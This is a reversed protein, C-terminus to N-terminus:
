VRIRMAPDLLALNRQRERRHFSDSRQQGGEREGLSAEGRIIGRVEFHDLPDLSFREFIRVDHVM